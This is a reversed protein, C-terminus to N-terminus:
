YINKRMIDIETLVWWTAKEAGEKTSFVPILKIIWEEEMFKKLWLNNIKIPSIWIYWKKM